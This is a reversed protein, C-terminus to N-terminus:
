KEFGRYVKGPELKVNHLEALESVTVFAYGQKKLIDIAQLAGEVSTEYLDHLLIISGDKAERVITDRVHNTDRYKWDNTDVSWNIVPLGLKKMQDLVTQDYNGGVPRMLTPNQGTYQSILRNNGDVQSFIGDSTLSPLNKHDMTHNGVEHGEKLYREMHSHYSKVRYGCLFFTAHAGREKLGNLLRVTLAQDGNGTPGDDFTIAVYAKAEPIETKEEPPTEEKEEVVPAQKKEPLMKCATLVYQKQSQYGSFDAGTIAGCSDDLAIYKMGLVSAFDAASVYAVGDQLVAKVTGIEKGDMGSILWNGDKQESGRYGMGQACSLLPLFLIGDQGVYPASTEGDSNKLEVAKGDALAWDAGSRIMLSGSTIQSRSPGLLKEATRIEEDTINWKIHDETLFLFGGEKENTETLQWGFQKSTERLPLYLVEGDRIASVTATRRHNWVSEVVAKGEAEQVKVGFMKSIWEAPIFIEDKEARPNGPLTSIEVVGNKVVADNGLQLIFRSTGVEFAVAGPAAALVLVAVLFMVAIKKGIRKM